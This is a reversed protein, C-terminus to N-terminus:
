GFIKLKFILWHAMYLGGIVIGIANLGLNLNNYKLDHEKADKKEYYFGIIGMICGTLPIIIAFLISLFGFIRSIELSYTRSDDPYPYM